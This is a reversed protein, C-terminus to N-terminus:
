FNSNIKSVYFYIALRVVVSLLIWGAFFYSAERWTVYNDEFKVLKKNVLEMENVIFKTSKDDDNKSRQAEVDNWFDDSNKSM